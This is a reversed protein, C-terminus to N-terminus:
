VGAAKIGETLGKELRGNEEQQKWAFKSVECVQIEEGLCWPSIEQAYECAWQKAWGMKRREYIISKSASVPGSFCNDGM